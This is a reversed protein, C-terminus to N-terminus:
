GNIDQGITISENSVKVLPKNFFSSKHHMQILLLIWQAFDPKNKLFAYKFKIKETLSVLTYVEYKCGTTQKVGL